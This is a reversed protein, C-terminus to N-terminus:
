QTIRFVVGGTRGFVEPQYMLDAQVPPTPYIGPTTTRFLFSVEHKGRALEDFFFRVESDYIKTTYGAYGFDGEYGTDGGESEDQAAQDSAQKVIQSTLLSGDIPEAGSPLPARLALFTRDQSSYFVVRMTYVKGLSLDTGQVIAGKEDRIEAAIGIGEDRPEVAAAAIAYRLEATYYLTGKGELGFTLPLLKGAASSQGQEKGAIGTLDRAQVQKSFPNKSFGKFRNRAVETNGLKVTATFDANAESGRAVIESFAQLVWGANSTNEWYGTANSALLDNALGLVLQSDPQLRAYLMLLLAKAQLGGGYWLWDDVTGVLTVTRTGVRVFNSLRTLVAQASKANGMAQYSLGLFGYGFVGIADGQEALAAAKEKEDRGYSCLVYLAYAQLYTSRDKWGDEIYSLLADVDLAPPLRLAKAKAANLLHAVRLSVYYNSRRPAPDDWYSFGGDPNAFRALTSLDASAGGALAPFLVRAFLKSTVQELCDYPYIDLFKVAGALASAITSDLSLYLGEEQTGLFAPPVALGEKAIDGTKGVITFSETVHEDVIALTEELREKLVDSDVNFSLRATGEAAATLGFAVEATEGPQLTVSKKQAGQVAIGQAGITIGVAHQRADINTLVVGATAADGVRMRRPLAARVNIPNQVLIEGEAIGFSDDKAAVATSRFRTLLDPLKFRVTVTGDKGTILGIRFVATPNFDKRVSMGPGAPASEGKEDGGPIDNAKWTVPALLLDRSDFHAVKDPFNASSYFFDVPNPVRYNILDLVGRDAAVLAIEAGQLPQGNRSAKIVVSAESGPLYSEKANTISLTITRSDTRVPIEVLGSYGRPKGFDPMDPGDPPPATRGSATAVFVYVMPVHEETIRVDVTPASGTLELTRQELVGDREVSVLYTAKALPSKILLRATDGPAYFKKDPVIEIQREDSRQWVIEDSGTSYFSYRTYSERGKADKGSLEIAYSGSKQTTLQVSAFPQDPKVTFSKEEVEQKEYRTDVMGGIALERVLKWDERLLRGSVAASAYPKGDPDVSVVKLTFPKGKTVFYLPDDSRADATLKAGLLQESSFVLRSDSKSIAQRDVDEVTAVVEYSYVRGKEGDGLKQSAATAGTGSLSGSDSNLDEAWGKEVDGFSYDALADGPPQFWTERRTWFCSWNGKTVTGGALYSGSFRADLSGGMFARADPLALTVSFAVRRFNAVQVYASGTRTDQKGAIRHFVLLWDGPEADKPLVIQGSFSGSASVDGTASGAPTGDESGNTLDVRFRGQAPRLKGVALDRDIGAFSLTEGPRYIGRDSWLYTLPQPMEASYPEFSNWTRGEMQSPRLLLRDKGKAIEVEAKEESGRFAAMLTGPSLPLSALGKADTRGTALAKGDKRLTVSADAVPAGTALSSALVLLSNYGVNLSAGIDTVQVTLDDKVEQPTDSDEFLGKFSWSLYAAGKGADNLYPKLDFLEFHRVNRPIKSIDIATTPGRPPAAFPDPM